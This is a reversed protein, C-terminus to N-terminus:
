MTEDLWPKVPASISRSSPCKPLQKRSRRSISESRYADHVKAWPALSCRAGRQGDTRLSSRHHRANSGSTVASM